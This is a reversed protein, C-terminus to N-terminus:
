GNDRRRRGAAGHRAAWSIYRCRPPRCSSRPVMDWGHSPCPGTAATRARARPGSRRETRPTAPGVRGSPDWAMPGVDSPGAQGCISNGVDPRGSAGGKSPVAGACDSRGPTRADREFGQDASSSSPATSGPVTLSRVDGVGVRVSSFPPKRPWSNADGAGALPSAGLV